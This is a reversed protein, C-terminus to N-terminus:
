CHIGGKELAEKMVTVEETFRSLLELNDNHSYSESKLQKELQTSIKHINTWALANAKSAIRNIYLLAVNNEGQAVPASVQPIDALASVVLEAYGKILQEVNLDHNCIGQPLDVGSVHCIFQSYALTAPVSQNLADIDHDKAQQEIHAFKDGLSAFGFSGAAGKIRHAIEKVNHIDQQQWVTEFQAIQKPLDRYYNAVLGLMESNSFLSESSGRAKLYQSLTNIFDARVIPKALHNTFGKQRYMEIEHKMNNATLAIVPLDYGYKRLKETAEDGKMRPMQIDMLILDYENEFVKQLAVDGDDAETVEINMRHLIIKILDRNNPHDDVLLVKAGSFDPIQDQAANDPTQVKWLDALSAVMDSEPTPEVNITVEFNSGKGPTSQAHIDGGLGMALRKSITLGLGTGGFQRAVSSDGQDFPNFVSALRTQSMGIGTDKVCVILRGDQYSVDLKISGKETFKIANNTLNLLIQKFRTPDTEVESPIPFHYDLTFELDKDRARKAMVSEVQAIIEMVSTPLMEFELKNAEIKSIDLIDSIIHLLHNGNESIIRIVRDQERKSIDGMLIGDAYGIISTLPTRIEHSMNALFHSKASSAEQLESILHELAVNAEALAETREFVKQELSNALSLNDQTILSVRAALALSLIISGTTNAMLGVFGIGMDPSVSPMLNIAILLLTPIAFAIFGFVFYHAPRYGDRWSIVGAALNVSISLLVVGSVVFLGIGPSIASIPLLMVSLWFIGGMSTNLGPALRQVDLFKRTFLLSLASSILFPPMLLYPMSWPIFIKVMGLIHSWGFCLILSSIAFYLYTKEKSAFYVFLNYVSLALLVGIALLVIVIRPELTDNIQTESFLRIKIPTFYFDSKFHLIVTASAGAPLDFFSGQQLNIDGRYHYGSVASQHGESTIINVRVEEVASGYPSIFWRTENTNNLINAIAVFQDGMVSPSEMKILGALWREIEDLNEPPQGSTLYYLDFHPSLDGQPLANLTLINGSAFLHKQIGFFLLLVIIIGQSHGKNM